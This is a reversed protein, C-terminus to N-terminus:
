SGSRKAKALQSEGLGRFAGYRLPLEIRLQQERVKCSFDSVEGPTAQDIV